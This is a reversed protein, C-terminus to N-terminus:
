RLGHAAALHPKQALLTELKSDPWLEIFPATGANNHQESWAVADASFRGSTAIVLGRVVPPEWLKVAALTDAVATPGVSRKLWHKAQVIVRESRVGGTSDRLSRDLSLDRGRDPARTQMLWQVNEHEPFSRLLDYLLREFDDDNLRDWPLALTATGTLHGGAERGLDIAPVPLPDTDSLAGAEVDSRVSPWDFERIDHWDHGQGFHLHRRLDGWRGRRQATDGLLREIENIAATVEDVRPGTLREQSDRPVGDLMDSLAVEIAATLQQLRERAARRRARNLRYRYEALDKAPQEAAEYLEFPPEGIEAYDIFDRGRADIDPLRGTITWSDITPLGPLLDDWARCLDDYEAPSGAAPGNPLFAAARRWVDDLKALNAATRDMANLLEDLEVAVGQWLRQRAKGAQTQEAHACRSRAGGPGAGGERSIFM